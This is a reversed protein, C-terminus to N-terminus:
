VGYPAGAIAAGVMGGFGFWVLLAMAQRGGEVTWSESIGLEASYNEVARGSMLVASWGLLGLSFPLAALPFAIESATRPALDALFVLTYFLAFAAVAGAGAARALLGWKRGRNEVGQM